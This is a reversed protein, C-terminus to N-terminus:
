GGTRWGTDVALYCCGLRSASEPQEAAVRHSPNSYPCRFPGIRLEFDARSTSSLPNSGRVGEIRVCRALACVPWTVADACTLPRHVAVIVADSAAQGLRAAGM